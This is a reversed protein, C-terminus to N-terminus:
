NSPRIECFIDPDVYQAITERADDVLKNYYSRDIKDRLGNSAVLASEMWRYGDAGSVSSPKEAANHVDELNRIVRLEGADNGALIPTFQGVRGVFNYNHGSNIETALSEREAILSEEGKKIQTTLKDRQKEAVSVDPLKENFDLYIDGKKVSFTECMDEFLIDEKSFMTKFVYPVAFQAGTATWEGCHDGYCSHAIYVAKNVICFKDYTAEHEFEYGYKRAFEMCFNKIFEDGNAIKISDTKIHIPNYGLKIVEDWLTDMFLAGRLAVINNINREDRFRNPFAASTLGYVPNIVMKLAQKCGDLSEKDDLYKVLKGDFMKAVNDYNKHKIEIRLKKIANFRETYPGFVDLQEMSTPHMSAIDLLYVNEYYGEKVRVLGGYSMDRGRHMNHMKGDEGKVFEYEPFAQVVNPDVKSEYPIGDYYRQGTKLDTYVLNPNTERDSLGPFVIEKSHDNTSHNCTLGSIDALIKRGIWDSRLYAFLKATADVDNCCYEAVKGWLEKAVPKDWPLGLELHRIGMEIEWKKLSQKKSAFDYIDTYSIHKAQYFGKSLNTVIDQSLNYLERNTYGMSCAYIIHNDYAINNFGVLKYQMFRKMDEATPNIMSVITADPKNRKYCVVFLNPFVEVDYFIIDEDTGTPDDEKFQSQAPNEKKLKLLPVMKVCKERQNSSNLAFNMLEPLLDSIDYFINPDNYADDTVKQIFSMNTATSYPPIEKRLAKEVMNRLHREDELKFTDLMDTEKRKRLPLGSSIHAIPEDNCLILKRRLAQKGKYVKIEIHDDYVSSLDEPNGDYWYHLHLGGGSKSTEAYTKPFKSAMKINTNLDKEGDVKMDFDIVILNEPVRVYHLARTDIDKTTTKVCDWAMKPTENENTYQALCDKCFENFQNIEGAPKLELWEPITEVKKEVKKTEKKNFIDTIFGSFTNNEYVYYYNKLEERFKTMTMCEMNGEENYTKYLKYAYSLSVTEQNLQNFNDIVFNYFDNTISIMEIPRYDDYAYPNDLYVQRCYHAIAGLEFKIRGTHHKYDKASLKRGSPKCDILRRLLGSKQDTIRVPTNTGMMLFSNFRCPYQKGYKPNVMMTEHSVLSNLKTNDIIKSLDGDHQIAVLPNDKFCELSFANNAQGLAKADFTGVYGKFLQTVINLITSKGAGAPGYLVLFKQLNVSDGAFISGICWIIKHAEDPDYLTNMIADFSSHDGEVIDYPLRISAYDERNPPDSKFILKENLTLARGDIVIEPLVEKCYHNLRDVVKSSSNKALRTACGPYKEKLSYIYQDIVSYLYSKNTSWLGEEPNWVAYFMGGRVLIDKPEPYSIFEASVVSKRATEEVYEGLFDHTPKVM